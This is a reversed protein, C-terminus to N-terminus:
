ETFSIKKHIMGEQKYTIAFLKNKTTILMDSEGIVCCTNPDSSITTTPNAFTNTSFFCYYKEENRVLSEPTWHAANSRSVDLTAEMWIAFDPVCSSTTGMNGATRVIQEELKAPSAPTTISFIIFPFFRTDMKWCFMHSLKDAHAFLNVRLQPATRFKTQKTTSFPREKGCLIDSVWKLTYANSVIALYLLRDRM